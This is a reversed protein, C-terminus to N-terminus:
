GAVDVMSELHKVLRLVERAKIVFGLHIMLPTISLAEHRTPIERIVVEGIENFTPGAHLIGFFKDVGGFYNYDNLLVPSGSSGAFCAIDIVAEPRGNFDVGPHSATMGRRLLPLNNVEDWLGKPYGIMIVSLLPPYNFSEKDSPIASSSMPCYYVDSLVDGALMKLHSVSIACLDISPDPHPSFLSAPDAIEISRDELFGRAGCHCRFRVRLATELVHKNTVLYGPRSDHHKYDEFFFATGSGTGGDLETTEVRVTSYLYASAAHDPKAM